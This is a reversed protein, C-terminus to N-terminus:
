DGAPRGACQPRISPSPPMELPSNPRSWSTSPRARHVDLLRGAPSLGPPRCTIAASWPKADPVKVQAPTAGPPAVAVRPRRPDDATRGSRAARSGVTPAPSGYVTAASTSRATATSPGCTPSPRPARARRDSPRHAGRPASRAPRAHERHGAEHEDRGASSPAGGSRRGGAPQAARAGAATPLAASRDATSPAAGASRAMDRWGDGSISAVAASVARHRRRGPVASASHCRVDVHCGGSRSSSRPGSPPARRQHDAAASSRMLVGSDVSSARGADRRRGGCGRRHRGRRAPAPGPPRRAARRHRRRRWRDTANDTGWSSTWADREIADPVDRDDGVDVVALGRQGVAQELDRARDLRPVHLLLEEVRHVDLALPADGDLELRDAECHFSWTMLRM